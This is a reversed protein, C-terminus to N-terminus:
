IITFSLAYCVSQPFAGVAPQVVSPAEFRPSGDPAEVWICYRAPPTLRERFDFRLMLHRVEGPAVPATYRYRNGAGDPPLRELTAGSHEQQATAVGVVRIIASETRALLFQDPGPGPQLSGGSGSGSGSDSPNAPVGPAMGAPIRGPPGGPARNFLLASGALSKSFATNGMDLLM